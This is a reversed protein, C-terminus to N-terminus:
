LGNKANLAYFTRPQFVATLHFVCFPLDQKEKSVESSELILQKHAQIKEKLPIMVILPYRDYSRVRRWKLESLDEESTNQSDDLKLIVHNDNFSTAQRTM